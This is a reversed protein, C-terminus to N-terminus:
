LFIIIRIIINIYQKVETHWRSINDIIINNNDRNPLERELDMSM